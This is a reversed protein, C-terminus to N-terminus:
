LAEIEITIGDLLRSCEKMVDMGNEPTFIINGLLFSDYDEPPMRIIDGPHRIINIEKIRPDKELALWNIRKFIGGQRAHIRLGVYPRSPQFSGIRFPRKQAVDLNLALIDLQLANRILAPLCDGGPRPAM